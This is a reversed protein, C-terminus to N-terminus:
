LVTGVWLIQGGRKKLVPKVAFIGIARSNIYFWCIIAAIRIKCCWYPFFYWPPFSSLSPTIFSMTIVRTSNCFLEFHFDWYNSHDNFCYFIHFSLIIIIITILIEYKISLPHFPIRLVPFHLFLLPTKCLILM